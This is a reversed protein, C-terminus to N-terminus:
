MKKKLALYHACFRMGLTELQWDYTIIDKCSGTADWSEIHVYSKNLLLKPAEIDDAAIDINYSTFANAKRLEENSLSLRVTNTEM